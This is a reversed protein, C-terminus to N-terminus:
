IYFFNEYNEKIQYAIILILPMRIYPNYLCLNKSLHDFNLCIRKNIIKKMTRMKRRAKKIIKLNNNHNDQLLSIMDTKNINRLVIKYKKNMWKKDKNLNSM